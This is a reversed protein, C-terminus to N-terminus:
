NRFNYNKTKGGITKHLIIFNTLVMDFLKRSVPYFLKVKDYFDLGKYGYTCFHKTYM